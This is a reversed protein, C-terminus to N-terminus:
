VSGRNHFLIFKKLLFNGVFIIGTMVIKALVVSMAAIEVLTLLLMEGILLTVLSIALFLPFEIKVSTYKRQGFVWMVCCTYSVCLGVCFGIANAILYHIDLYKTLLIFVSFDSLFALTGAILYKIFEYHIAKM